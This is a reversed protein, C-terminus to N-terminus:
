MLASRVLRDTLQPLSVGARNAAMPLLSHSTFGPLTNVELIWPKMDTDVIFDIRSLHRCGLTFFASLAAQKIANIREGPLDIDFRYQTDDREYKAQYDYFEVAPVIHIPPLAVYGGPAEVDAIVGVTIERGPTFRELLLRDYKELLEALKRDATAEDRCIALDISSGECPPKIVLPAPMTRQSGREIVEFPPTPLGARQLAEKARIKDMCLAAAISDCGVFRFNRAELERLLPGGEGWPGHLVPFIVDGQWSAFEELCALDDPMPDRQLVEHGAQKLAQVVTHGSQLSVPRERDPGGALVM